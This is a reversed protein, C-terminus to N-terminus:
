LQSDVTARLTDPVRGEFIVDHVFMENDFVVLSARCGPAIRGITSELGLFTAPYLSAMRLAEDRPVGVHQVANRVATAMDLSSGALVGEPTVCRGSEDVLVRIGGISFERIDSGVCSTADTVLFAKGAPKARFATKLVAFDVHWGDCIFSCWCTDNALLAGATAPDRSTLAGMANFVHTGLRLGARVADAIEESSADSHGAAVRVGAGRLRRIIELPVVEPALTVLASESGTYIDLLEGSATSTLLRADHAGAKAPNLLPGEFHIGLAASGGDRRYEVMADRACATTEIPATVVAALFYTTGLSRHAEEMTLLSEPSPDDTFFVGGGGNMQLDIFGPALNMGNLNIVEADEPISDLAAVGVIEAGDILVAHTMLTESGTYIDCNTLAIM